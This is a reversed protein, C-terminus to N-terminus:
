LAIEKEIISEGIERFAREYTQLCDDDTRAPSYAEHLALWQQAQKESEYHFRHNLRWTRFSEIYAARTREPFVSPHITVNVPREVETIYGLSLKAVIETINRVVM